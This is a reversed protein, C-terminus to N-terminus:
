ATAGKTFMARLRDVPREFPQGKAAQVRVTTEAAANKVAADIDYRVVRGISAKLM